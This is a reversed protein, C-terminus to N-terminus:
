NKHATDAMCNIPYYPRNNQYFALIVFESQLQINYLLNNLFKGKSIINILDIAVNISQLSKKNNM